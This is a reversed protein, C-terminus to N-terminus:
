APLHRRSNIMQKSAAQNRELMMATIDNTSSEAEPVRSDRKCCCQFAALYVASAWAWYVVLRLLAKANV